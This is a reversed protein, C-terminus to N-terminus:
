KEKKKRPPLPPRKRIVIADEELDLQVQTDKRLDLAKTFPKPLIVGITGSTSPRFLKKTVPEM